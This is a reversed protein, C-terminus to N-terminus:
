RRELLKLVGRRHESARAISLPTEGAKNKVNVKAGRALLVEAGRTSGILAAEHLPTDGEDDVADIKAGANLLMLMGKAPGADRYVTDHPEGLKAYIHVEQQRYAFPGWHLPTRGHADKAEIDAHAAILVAVAEEKREILAEHLPTFGDNTAHPTVEAKAALLIRMTSVHGYKAAAHLPTFGWGDPEGNPNAGKALMASVFKDLGGRAALALAGKDIVAGAEMLVLAAEEYEYELVWMITPGYPHETATLLKPHASVFAQLQEKTAEKRALERYEEILPADSPPKEPVAATRPPSAVSASASLAAFVPPKWVGPASGMAKAPDPNTNVSTERSSCAVLLLAVGVLNTAATRRPLVHLM